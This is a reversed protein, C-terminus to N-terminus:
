LSRAAVVVMVRGAGARKLARAAESCTAGTTLIDDVLLVTKEQMQPRRRVSFAGRVNPLRASRALKAQQRTSRVRGILRRAYPRRLRRAIVEALQEPANTQRVLRRRWHMPVATVLDVEQDRLQDGLRSWILRGLGLAVAEESAHKARLVLHRLLGEYPGAAFAEDFRFSAGQCVTCPAYRDEGLMVVPSACRPCSPASTSPIAELCSPCLGPEEVQPEELSAQCAFCTSPLLLEGAQQGLWGLWDKRYAAVLQGM